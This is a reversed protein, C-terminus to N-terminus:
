TLIITASADMGPIPTGGYEQAEVTITATGAAPTGSIVGTSSDISLGTDGATIAFVM